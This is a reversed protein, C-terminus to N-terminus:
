DVWLDTVSDTWLVALKDIMGTWRDYSWDTWWGMLEDIVHRDTVGGTLGAIWRDSLGDGDLWRYVMKGQRDPQGENHSQEDVM